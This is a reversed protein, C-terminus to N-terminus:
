GDQSFNANAGEDPSHDRLLDLRVRQAEGWGRGPLLAELFARSGAARTNPLWFEASNSFDEVFRFTWSVSQGFGGQMVLLNAQPVSVQGSVQLTDNPRVGVLRFTRPEDTGGTFEIRINETDGYREDLQGTVEVGDVQLREPTWPGVLRQYTSARKSGTDCGSVLIVGFVLALVAATRRATTRGNSRLRSM